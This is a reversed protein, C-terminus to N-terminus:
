HGVGVFNLFFLVRSNLLMGFGDERLGATLSTHAEGCNPYMQCRLIVFCVNTHWRNRRLHACTRRM